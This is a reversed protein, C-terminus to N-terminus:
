DRQGIAKTEEDIKLMIKYKCSALSKMKKMIKVKEIFERANHKNM